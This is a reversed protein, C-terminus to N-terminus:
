KNMETKIFQAFAQEKEAVFAGTALQPGDNVELCYWAGTSLDQVMDVGAVGRGLARAANISDIQVNTPLDAAQVLSADGGQSTNNLHTADDQRRRHIILAIRRGFVLVRLDGDNPIFRQAVAYITGRKMREAITKFEQESTIVHNEDGRSAHISKLVFPSGVAEVFRDYSEPLRAPMVFCTDPIPVMEDALIAYQYLKSMGPFNKVAEDMVKVGRKLAYRAIAATVDREVSTKFHIIDFTAIDDGTTLLKVKAGEAAFFFAVDDYAAHVIEINGHAKTVEGAFNAVNPSIWASLLLMRVPRQATGDLSVDVIFKGHLTRRGILIPQSNNERNALTFRVALTKKALRIRLTVKYRFETHGFSNKISIMSFSQTSLQKGTYYPSTKDFLTFYLHGNEEHINSAWIASSDAGTDVKAPVGFIDLTPFDVLEKTGVTTVPKSHNKM